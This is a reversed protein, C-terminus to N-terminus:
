EIMDNLIRLHKFFLEDYKKARSEIAQKIKKNEPKKADDDLQLNKSLLASVINDLEYFDYEIVVKNEENGIRKM